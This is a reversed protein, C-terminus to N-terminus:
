PTVHRSEQYDKYRISIDALFGAAELKPLLKEHSYSLWNVENPDPQISLFEIEPKDM